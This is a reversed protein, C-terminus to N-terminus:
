GRLNLTVSGLGSVHVLARDDVSLWVTQVLSGTLVIEGKRLSIGRAALNNALWALANHPHGRVDAGIGRGVELDNIM